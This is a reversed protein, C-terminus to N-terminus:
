DDVILDDLLDGSHFLGVNEDCILRSRGYHARGLRDVRPVDADLLELVHEENVLSVLFTSLIHEVALYDRLSGLRVVSGNVIIRDISRPLQHSLRGLNVVVQELVALIGLFEDLHFPIVRMLLSLVLFHEAHAVLVLEELEAVVEFDANTALIVEEVLGAVFTQGVQEHQEFPVM